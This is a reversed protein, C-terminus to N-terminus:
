VVLGAADIVRAARGPIAPAIAAIRDGQVALEGRFWPNGTGDVIRANRIILDYSSPAQAAAVATNRLVPIAAFSATVPIPVYPMMRPPQALLLM